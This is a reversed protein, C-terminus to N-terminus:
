NEVVQIVCNRMKNVHDQDQPVHDEMSFEYILAGQADQRPGLM